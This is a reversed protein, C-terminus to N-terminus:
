VYIKILQLKWFTEEFIKPHFYLYSRGLDHKSDQMLEEYVYIDLCWFRYPFLSYFTFWPVCLLLHYCFTPLYEPLRLRHVHPQRGKWHRPAAGAGQARRHHPRAGRARGDGHGRRRHAGPAAGPGPRPRLLAREGAGDGAGADERADAVGPEVGARQVRHARRARHRFWDPAREARACGTARICWCIM